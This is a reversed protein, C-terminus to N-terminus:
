RRIDPDDISRFAEAFDGRKSLSALSSEPDKNHREVHRVVIMELSALDAQDIAAQNLLIEGLSKGKDLVWANMAEILADRTIFDLQLAIIGLLLNRDAGQGNM